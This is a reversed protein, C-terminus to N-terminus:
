HELVDIAKETLVVLTILPHTAAPSRRRALAKQASRLNAVLMSPLPPDKWLDAHGPVNAALPGIAANAMATFPWTRHHCKHTRLTVRNQLLIHSM